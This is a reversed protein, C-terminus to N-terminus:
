ATGAAQNKNKRRTIISVILAAVAASLVLSPIVALFTAYGAAGLDNYKRQFKPKFDRAGAEYWSENNDDDYLSANLHIDERNGPLSVVDVGVFSNQSRMQQDLAEAEGPPVLFTFDRHEATFAALHQQLVVSADQGSHLRCKLLIDSTLEDKPQEYPSSIVLVPFSPDAPSSAPWRHQMLYVRAGVWNVVCGVPFFVLTLVLWLLAAKVAGKLKM